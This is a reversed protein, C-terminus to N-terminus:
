NTVGHTTKVVDDLLKKGIRSAMDTYLPETIVNRVLDKRFDYPANDVAM